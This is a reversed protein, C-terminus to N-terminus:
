HNKTFDAAAESLSLDFVWFNGKQVLEHTLWPSRRYARHWQDNNCVLYRAGKGYYLAIRDEGKVGSDYLNTFGKQDMLSLSINPSTDTFSMVLANRQIGLDRLTQEWIEANAFRRGQDWHHWAWRDKDEQSLMHKALYGGVRRHKLRTRLSADALQVVFALAMLALWVPPTRKDRNEWRHVSWALGVPMLVQLEILYYDHVYLNNYWLLVYATCGAALGAASWGLWRGIATRLRQTQVLTVSIWIAICALTFGRYWEPLVISTFDGWVKSVSASDWIPRLDTLFYTSGHIRNYEKTWMVWAVGLVLPLGIAVIWPVRRQAGFWALGLPVWALGMTPRFLVALTLYAVMQLLAMRSTCRSCWWRYAWWWGAFVLGLGAANVLYNPGYFALLGSSMTFWTVAMAMKDSILQTLLRFLCWCGMLLLGLHTWKLTWPLTGTHAWLKGNLYYTLPFEGAANGGGTGHQFHMTPQFLSRDEKAYNLTMSYADCQRWQHMGYPGKFALDDFDYIVLTLFVVGLWFLVKNLPSTGVVTMEKDAMNM